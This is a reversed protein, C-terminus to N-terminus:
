IVATERLPRGATMREPGLPSLDLSRYGGYLILEAVGRGVAPAQQLGHGSFGNAFHFNPLEPPPGIVANQDLTNYAYHGTYFREVRAREFQPVRHAILPWITEEFLAHDTDFDHPDSELDPDSALGTLFWPGEPRVYIGSPDTVLPMRGPVPDPCSFLFSHRKRAEVALDLGAMRAVKRARTGAANVVHGCAVREGSALHAAEVRGGARDLAVVENEVYEVGRRRASRRFGQMLGMADFWGEAGAGWSAGALDSTAVYPFREGVEAATLFVTEAGLSRQLEALARATAEGAATCCVLYGHERFALDCGDEGLRGEFSRIFAVGFQSILVNVPTSFQQRIGSSSRATSAFEYSPDREVVLVRGPQGLETLWWAVASGIVAGGVIVVDFSQRSPARLGTM